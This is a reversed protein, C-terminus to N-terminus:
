SKAFYASLKGVPRNVPFAWQYREMFARVERDMGASVAQRQVLAKKEDEDVEVDRQLEVEGVWHGFDTRDLVVEFEKNLRWTDRYTTYRAMVELGCLRVDSGDKETPLFRVGPVFRQVQKLIESPESLEEFRSNTYTSNTRDTRVKAQWIGERRRVWVGNTSLQQRYDFYQDEFVSQGINEVYDFSPSGRNFCFIDKSKPGCSFKREVEIVARRLRLVATPRM